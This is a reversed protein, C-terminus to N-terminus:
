RVAGQLETMDVAYIVSRRAAPWTYSVPSLSLQARAADIANRLEQVHAAFVTAHPGVGASFAPTANPGFARRYLSTAATRLQTMHIAAIVTQRPVVPDFMVTTALDYVSGSKASGKVARVRYIIAQDSPAFADAYSRDQASTTTYIKDTERYIEFRDASGSFQWTLNVRTSSVATAVLNTPAPPPVDATVTVTATDSASCGYADTANITLTTTTESSTVAHQAPSSTVNSQVFGDPWSITWPSVGTLVAVLNVSTNATTTVDDVALFPAIAVTRASSGTCGGASVQVSLSISGSCGARFTIANTGMGSLVTAGNVTWTYTAGSGAAPVSATLTGSVSVTSAVAITADPPSCQGGTATVTAVRSDVTCSGNSVRVWYTSTQNVQITLESATQASLLSEGQFWQYTSGAPATVSIGAQSGAAVTKDVPGSIVLDACYNTVSISGPRPMAGDLTQTYLPGDSNNANRAQVTKVMGNPHYTIGSTGTYGSVGALFGNQYQNTVTRAPCLLCTPYEITQIEGLADYTYKDTFTDGPILTTKKESLRGDTDSYTFVEQVTPADVGLITNPHYRVATTVKGDGAATEDYTLEKLPTGDQLVKRVRGARDYQFETKISGGTKPITRSVVNGRADYEYSTTGSEPHEESTLLGRRDYNFKRAPQTTGEGAMEVRILRDAYDYTYTTVPPTSGDSNETVKYLRGARDVEETVSIPTEGASTAIKQKRKTERQGKYTFEVTSQDANTIKGVRGFADYDSFVTKGASPAGSGAESVSARRGLGDYLTERVSWTGDPMLKKERAIRGLADFEWEDKVTSAGLTRSATVKAPETQSAPTYVYSTAVEGPPTVSKLRGRADYLYTTENGATDRGASAVGTNRDLTLDVSLFDDDGLLKETYSLPSYTRRISYVSAAPLAMSCDASTGISQTDGGFSEEKAVYGAADATYVVLLDHELPTTESSLARRRTQFGTNQEFCDQHVAKVGDELSYGSAFMGLLWKAGAGLGIYGSARTGGPGLAYTGASVNFNTYTEKVNGSAFNGATKQKRYHGLGDFESFDTAAYKPSTDGAPIDTLYTTRESAVRRNREKWCPTNWVCANPNPHAEDYPEVYDMEYRVFQAREAATNCGSSPNCDYTLSSLFRGTVASDPNSIGTVTGTTFPLGFQETDATIFYSDTRVDPFADAPQAYSDVTTKAYGTAQSPDYDYLTKQITAATGGAGPVTVLKERVANTLGDPATWDFNLTKYKWQIAGLTPLTASLLTGTSNDCPSGLAPNNYTFSYTEGLPLVVSSLLQVTQTVSTNSAHCPRALETTTRKLTYTATGGGFAALTLVVDPNTGTQFAVTHSRGTTDTITWQNATATDIKVYNATPVGNADPASFRHYIYDPPYVTGATTGSSVVFRQMTGDPFEVLKTTANIDKMRLYSGDRTYRVATDIPDCDTTVAGACKPDHLTRFFLHESGDPTRYKWMSAAVSFEGSTKPEVLEGFTLRWGPAINDDRMDFPVRCQDGDKGACIETATWIDGAYRLVFGYSLGASVPYSPGLPVTLILNGNFLNVSDFGNFQYVADAKFGRETAPHQAIAAPVVLLLLLLLIAIHSCRARKM